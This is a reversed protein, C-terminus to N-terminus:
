FFYLQVQSFDQMSYYSHVPEWAWTLKEQNRRTHVVHTVTGGIIFVRWEGFTRLEPIYTQAMWAARPIQAGSLM